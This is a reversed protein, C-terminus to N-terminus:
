SATDAPEAGEGTPAHEDLHETVRQKAVLERLTEESILWVWGAKRAKIKGAECWKKITDASPAGRGGIRGRGVTYGHEKLYQAASTTTHDPM